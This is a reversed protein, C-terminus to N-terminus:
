LGDKREEINDENNANTQEKNKKGFIRDWNTAFQDKNEPQRQVYVLDSWRVETSSTRADM